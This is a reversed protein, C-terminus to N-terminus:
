RQAEPSSVEKERLWELLTTRRVLVRRGIYVVGPLQHREILGYIAKRSTRLIEAVEDITLLTPERGSTDKTATQRTRPLRAPRLEVADQRSPAPLADPAALTLNPQSTGM